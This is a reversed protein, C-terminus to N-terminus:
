SGIVFDISFSFEVALMHEADQAYFVFLSENGDCRILYDKLLGTTISCLLKSNIYFPEYPPIAGTPSMPKVLWCEDRYGHHCMACHISLKYDRNIRLQEDIAEAAGYQMFLVIGQMGIKNYIIEVYNYCVYRRLCFIDAGHRFLEHLTLMYDLKNHWHLPRGRLEIIVSILPTFLAGKVGNVDAGADILPKIAEFFGKESAAILKSSLYDKRSSM